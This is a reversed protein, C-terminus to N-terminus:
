SLTRAVRFGIVYDRVDTVGKSRCASRCLGPSNVWSGGRLVCLRANSSSAPDKWASGESPAGLYNEHWDDEGWEWVNGHMDHLRWANAPYAGVESANARRLGSNGYNANDPRIADGFSYRTMTGARCAYEWEAESPLRYVQGTEQSLWAVYARADEWSVNIVPKGRARSQDELKARGHADCFHDYEAFTVPYRGIAFPEAITVRHRPREDEVGGVEEDTSGMMFEGAPVVVLEPAFPADRFVSFDAGRLRAAEARAVEARQKEEKAHRAMEAWQKEEEVQRAAEAQQREQARQQAEIELRKQREEPSVWPERLAEVIKDCFREIQERVAPTRVDLHRLPRWDVYQRSGIISLVSGRAM